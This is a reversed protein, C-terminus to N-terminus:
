APILRRVVSYACAAVLCGFSIAVLGCTLVNFALGYRLAVFLWAAFVLSYIICAAATSNFLKAVRRVFRDPHTAANAEFACVWFQGQVGLVQELKQGRQVLRHSRRIGRVEYVFLALTFAAAFFSAYAVVENNAVRETGSFEGKELVVLGVISALPLFGLLKVRYDDIAHYSRCVEAYAALLSSEAPSAPPILEQPQFDAPVSQADVHDNETM